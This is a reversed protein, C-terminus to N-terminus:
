PKAPTARPRRGAPVAAARPPPRIAPRQGAPAPAPALRLGAPAALRLAAVAAGTARSVRLGIFFAVESDSGFSSLGNPLRLGSEHSPPFEAM